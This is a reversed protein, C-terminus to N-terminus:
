NLTSPWNSPCPLRLTWGSARAAANFLEPIIGYRYSTRHDVPTIGQHIILRYLKNEFDELTGCHVTSFLGDVDHLQIFPGFGNDHIQATLSMTADEM